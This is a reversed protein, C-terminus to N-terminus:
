KIFTRYTNLSWVQAPKRATLLLRLSISTCYNSKNRHKGPRKLKTSKRKKRKKKTCTLKICSRTPSCDRVKFTHPWCESGSRSTISLGDETIVWTLRSSSPFLAAPSLPSNDKNKDRKPEHWFFFVLFFFTICSGWSLFCVCMCVGIQKVPDVCHFWSCLIGSNPFHVSTVVSFSDSNRQEAYNITAARQGTIFTFSTVYYHEILIAKNNLFAYCHRLWWLGGTSIMM